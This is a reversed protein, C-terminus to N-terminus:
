VTAYRSPRPTSSIGVAVLGSGAFCDATRVGFAAVGVFGVAVGVVYTRSEDAVDPLVPLTGVGFGAVDGLFNDDDCPTRGAFDGVADDFPTDVM